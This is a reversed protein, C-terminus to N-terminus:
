TQSPALPSEPATLEKKGIFVFPHDKVAILMLMIDTMSTHNAVFVYSQGKVLAEPREVRWYCGMGILICKAWIRALKFFYPYWRPKLVSIFLFPFMLIIIGAVLAYFWIRYFIWFPYKIFKM